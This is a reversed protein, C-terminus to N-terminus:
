GEGEWLRCWADPKIQGRMASCIRKGTVVHVYAFRCNSCKQGKTKSEEAYLADQKSMKYEQTTSGLLWWLMSQKAKEEPPLKNFNEVEKKVGPPADKGAKPYKFPEVSKEDFWEGYSKM